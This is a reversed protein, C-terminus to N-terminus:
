DNYVNLTLIGFEQQYRVLERSPVPSNAPARRRLFPLANGLTTALTDPFQGPALGLDSAFTTFQFQETCTTNDVNVLPVNRM